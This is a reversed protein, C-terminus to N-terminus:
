WPKVDNNYLVDLKQDIITKKYYDSLNVTNGGIGLGLLDSLGQIVSVTPPNLASYKSDLLNQLGVISSM